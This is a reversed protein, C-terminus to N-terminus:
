SGCTATWLPCINFATSACSKLAEDMSHNEFCYHAQKEMVGHVFKRKGFDDSVAPTKDVIV